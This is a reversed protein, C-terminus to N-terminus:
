PAATAHAISLSLFLPLPFFESHLHTWVVCASVAEQTRACFGTMYIGQCVGSSILQTAKYCKMAPTM